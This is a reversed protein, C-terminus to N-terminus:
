NTVHMKFYVMVIVQVQHKRARNEEGVQQLLKNLSKFNLTTFM